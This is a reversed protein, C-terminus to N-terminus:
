NSYNTWKSSKRVQYDLLGRHVTKGATVKIRWFEAQTDSGGPLSGSSVTQNQHGQPIYRDPGEGETNHTNAVWTEEVVEQTGKTCVHHSKLGLM